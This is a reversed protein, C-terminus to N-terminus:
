KYLRNSSMPPQLNHHMSIIHGRNSIPYPVSAKYRGVATVHPFLRTLMTIYSWFYSSWYTRAISLKCGLRMTDSIPSHHGSNLLWYQLVHQGEFTLFTSWTFNLKFGSTTMEINPAEQFPSAKKRLPPRINCKPNIMQSMQSIDLTYITVWPCSFGHLLVHTHEQPFLLLHTVITLQLTVFQEESYWM